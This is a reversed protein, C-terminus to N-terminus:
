HDTHENGSLWRTERVQYPAAAAFVMGYEDARDRM